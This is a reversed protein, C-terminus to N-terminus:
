EEKNNATERLQEEWISIKDKCKPSCVIAFNKINLDEEKKKEVTLMKNFDMVKKCVECKGKSKTYLKAKINYLKMSHIM